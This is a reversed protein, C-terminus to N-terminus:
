EDENVLSANVIVQLIVAVAGVAAGAYENVAMVLFALAIITTVLPAPM